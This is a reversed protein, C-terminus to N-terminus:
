LSAEPSINELPRLVGFNDVHMEKRASELFHNFDGRARRLYRIKGPTISGARWKIQNEGVDPTLNALLYYGIVVDGVIVYSALLTRPACSIEADQHRNTVFSLSEVRNNFLAFAKVIERSDNEIDGIRIKVDSPVAAFKFLYSVYECIQLWNKCLAIDLPYDIEYLNLEMLDAM